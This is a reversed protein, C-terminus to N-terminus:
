VPMLCLRLFCLPLTSAKNQMGHSACDFIQNQAFKKFTRVKLYIGFLTNTKKFPIYKGLRTRLGRLNVHFNTLEFIQHGVFIKLNVTAASLVVSVM